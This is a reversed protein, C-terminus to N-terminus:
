PNAGSAAVRICSDVQRGATADAAAFKRLLEIGAAATTKIWYSSAQHQDRVEVQAKFGLGNLRRRRQEAGKQDKFVGVSVANREDGDRIIYIDNVGARRLRNAMDHAAAFTQFPPFYVRYSDAVAATQPVITFALGQQRLPAAAATAGAPATFPGYEVCVQEDTASASTAQAVVPATAPLAPADSPQWLKLTPAKPLDFPAPQAIRTRTPVVWVQWALLGLNALLLALFVIKM